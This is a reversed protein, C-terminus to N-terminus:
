EFCVYDSDGTYGFKKFLWDWEEPTYFCECTVQWYLLNVKEEETRYSDMVVYGKGKGVRQIEHFADELDPLRLNHLTNISVVLDFEHDKFPLKTANATQLKGKVEPMGNEVAYSSVDVGNANLGPLVKEFDHVLFGKGCGIDLVKDGPKLGYHDILKQAFPVWRGDYKYGGYGYQRDGDFYDKGFQKSIKACAAKDFDTVRQIYNRPTKKHISSIFDLIPM